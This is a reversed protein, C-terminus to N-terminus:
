IRKAAFSSSAGSTEHSLMGAAGINALNLPGAASSVQVALSMDGAGGSCSRPRPWLMWGGLKGSTQNIVPLPTYAHWAMRAHTPPLMGHRIALTHLPSAEKRRALPRTHVLTPIICLRQHFPLLLAERAVSDHRAQPHGEPFSSALARLADRASGLTILKPRITLAQCRRLSKGAICRHPPLHLAIRRAHATCFENLGSSNVQM